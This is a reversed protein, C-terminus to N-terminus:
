KNSGSQKWQASLLKWTSGELRWATDIQELQGDSPLLGSGGTLAATFSATAHHDDQVTVTIPGLSAHINSERMLILRVYRGFTKRDLNEGQDETGIFDDSLPAILADVDHDNGAKQMQTITDRIAQEAPTRHCGSLTALVVAVAIPWLIGAIGGFSPRSMGVEM